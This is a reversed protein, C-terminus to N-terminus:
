TNIFNASDSVKVHVRASRTRLYYTVYIFNFFELIHPDSKTKTSILIVKELYSTLNLKRM